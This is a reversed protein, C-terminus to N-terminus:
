INLGVMFNDSLKIFKEAQEIIQDLKQMMTDHNSSIGNLSIANQHQQTKIHCTKHQTSYKGGCILCNNKENAHKKIHEQHDTNYKKHQKNLEEQHEQYYKAVYEKKEVNSIIPRNKNICKLMDSFHRERALLEDKIQCPFLEILIIDYDSNAIIDFSRMYNAKGGNSWNKYSSVHKALRHSLSKECTSGIYQNGDTNDVIKYIKGRQYKNDM